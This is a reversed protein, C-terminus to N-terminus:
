NNWTSGKCSTACTTHCDGACVASCGLACGGSCSLVCNSCFCAMEIGQNDNSIKSNYSQM